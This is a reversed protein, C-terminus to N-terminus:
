AGRPGILRSIKWRYVIVLGFILLVVQVSRWAIHDVLARAQSDIEGLQRFVDKPVGVKEVDALLARTSGAARDIAEASKTWDNIDFPRGPASPAAAPAASTADDTKWAKPLDGIDKVTGSVAAATQQWAKAAATGEVVTREVRDSVDRADKLVANLAATTERAEKLTAQLAPQGSELRDLLAEGQQRIDTPLKEATTLTRRLDQQVERFGEKFDGATHSEALDIGLLQIQWRVSAPLDEVVDTFRSAVQKIDSFTSGGTALTGVAKIPLLPLGVLFGLAKAGASATSIPEATQQEFVGTIPHERAYVDISARMEPLRNAPVVEAAIAQMREEITRAADQAIRQQAGFLSKGDGIEFYNVMRVCVAWTDVLGAAPDDNFTAGRILSSMRVKWLLAAKRQEREPVRREIKTAAEDITTQFFDNFQGLEAQIRAVKEHEITSKAEQRATKRQEIFTCGGAWVVAVIGLWGGQRMM